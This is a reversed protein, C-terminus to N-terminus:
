AGVHHLHQGIFCFRQRILAFLDIGDKGSDMVNQLVFLHLILYCFFDNRCRNNEIRLGHQFVVAVDHLPNRGQALFASFQIRIEATRFRFIFETLVRVAFVFLMIDLDPMVLSYCGPANLIINDPEPVDRLRLHQADIM